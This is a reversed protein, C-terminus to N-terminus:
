LFGTDVFARQFYECEDDAVLAVERIDAKTRLDLKRFHDILSNQVLPLRVSFSPLWQKASASERTLGPILRGDGVVRTTIKKQAGRQSM